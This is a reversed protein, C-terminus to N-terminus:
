SVKQQASNGDIPNDAKHGNSNEVSNTTPPAAAATSDTKEESPKVSSDTQQKENETPKSNVNVNGSYAEGNIPNYGM